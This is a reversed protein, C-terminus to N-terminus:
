YKGADAKQKELSAELLNGIEDNQLTGYNWGLEGDSFVVIATAEEGKRIGFALIRDPLVLEVRCVWQPLKVLGDNVKTSTQLSACIKAIATPDQITQLEKVLSPKRRKGTDQSPLIRIAKVQQASIKIVQELKNKSESLPGFTELYMLFLGPVMFAVGM